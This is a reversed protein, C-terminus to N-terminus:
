SPEPTKIEVMDDTVKIPKTAILHGLDSFMWGEPPQIVKGSAITMPSEMNRDCYKSLEEDPETRTTGNNFTIIDYHATCKLPYTIFVGMDQDRAYQEPNGIGEELNFTFWMARSRSKQPDLIRYGQGRQTTLRDLHAPDCGSWCTLTIPEKHSERRIEKVRSREYRSIELDRLDNQYEEEGEPTSRDYMMPNLFSQRELFIRAVDSHFSEYPLPESGGPTAKKPKLADKWTTQKEAQRRGQQMYDAYWQPVEADDVSIEMMKRYNSNFKLKPVESQRGSPELNGEICFGIRINTGLSDAMYEHEGGQAPWIYIDEMPTLLGRARGGDNAGWIHKTMRADIAITELLEEKSPNKYVNFTIKGDSTGDTKVVEERIIWNKFRRM